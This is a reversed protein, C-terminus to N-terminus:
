LGLRSKWGSNPAVGRSNKPAGTLNLSVQQQVQYSHLGYRCFGNPPGEAKYCLKSTKVGAAKKALPWEEWLWKLFGGQPPDKM